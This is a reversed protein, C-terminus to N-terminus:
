LTVKATKVNLCYLNSSKFILFNFEIQAFLTNKLNVKLLVHQVFIAPFTVCNKPKEILCWSPISAHKLYLVLRM